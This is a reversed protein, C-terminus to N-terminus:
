KAKKKQAQEPPPPTMGMIYGKSVIGGHASLFVAPWVCQRVMKGKSQYFKFYNTDSREGHDAWKIEMPPDQVAMLWMLEVCRDIYKMMADPLTASTDLKMKKIYQDKFLQKIETVATLATEKRFSRACRLAIQWTESMPSKGRAEATEGKKEGVPPTAPKATNLSGALTSSKGGSLGAAVGSKQESQGGAAGSKQESQCGSAGPKQGPRGGVSGPKQESQGGAAGPKQGPQGGDSGIKPKSQGSATDTSETGSKIDVGSMKKTDQKQKLETSQELKSDIAAVQEATQQLSVADKMGMAIKQLQKDAETGCFRYSEKVVDLLKDIQKMEEEEDEEESAAKKKGKGMEEFAESWQDDYMAAFHEGLKTPRNKDSLDAINPNGEKLKSSAIASLRSTLEEISERQNVLDYQMHEYDESKVLQYGDPIIVRFRDPDRRHEGRKAQDLETPTPESDDQKVEKTKGNGDHLQKQPNDKKEAPNASQKGVDVHTVHGGPRQEPLVSSQLHEVLQKRFAFEKLANTSQQPHKKKLQLLSNYLSGSLEAQGIKDCEEMMMDNNEQWSKRKESSIQEELNRQQKLLAQYEKMADENNDLLGLADMVGTITKGLDLDKPNLQSDSTVRIEPNHSKKAKEVESPAKDTPTRVDTHETKIPKTDPETKAHDPEKKNTGDNPQSPPQPSGETRADATSPQCQTVSIVSNAKAQDATTKKHQEGKTTPQSATGEVVLDSKTEKHQNRKLAPSQCHPAAPATKKTTTNAKNKGSM